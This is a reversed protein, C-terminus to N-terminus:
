ALPELVVQSSWATSVSGDKLEYAIMLGNDSWVAVVKGGKEEDPRGRHEAVKRGLLNTLVYSVAPGRM